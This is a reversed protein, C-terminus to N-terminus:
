VIFFLSLAQKDAVLAPSPQEVLSFPVEVLIAWMMHAVYFGGGGASTGTVVDFQSACSTSVKANCVTGNASKAFSCEGTPRLLGHRRLSPQLSRSYSSAAALCLGSVMSVKRGISFVLVRLLSSRSEQM